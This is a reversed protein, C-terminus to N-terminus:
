QAGGNGSFGRRAAFVHALQALLGALADVGVEIDVVWVSWQARTLLEDYCRRQESGHGHGRRELFRCQSACARMSCAATCCTSLKADWM